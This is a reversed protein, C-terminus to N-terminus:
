LVGGKYLKDLLATGQARLLDEISAAKVSGLYEDVIKRNKESRKMVDLIIDVQDKGIKAPGSPAAPKSGSSAAPAAPKDDPHKYANLDPGKGKPAEPPKPTETQAPFEKTTEPPTMRKEPHAWEEHKRMIIGREQELADEIQKLEVADLPQPHGDYEISVDQTWSWEGSDKKWGKLGVSTRM